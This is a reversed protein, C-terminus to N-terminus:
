KDKHLPMASGAERKSVPLLFSSEPYAWEPFIFSRNRQWFQPVKRLPKLPLTFLGPALENETWARSDMRHALLRHRLSRNSIGGVEMCVLIEPLYHLTIHPRTTLRLIFEYDAASAFDTRFGGLEKYVSKRLYITPHPPMWGARLRDLESRGARWYRHQRWIGNRRRVYLLDGYVGHVPSMELVSLIKWAILKGALFDDANLIGIVDSRALSLGSNVADYFGRDPESRISREVHPANGAALREAEYHEVRELTGDTSAGDLILHEIRFGKPLWQGDVSRCARVVTEPANHCATLVTLDRSM